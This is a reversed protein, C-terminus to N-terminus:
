EWKQKNQQYTPAVTFTVPNICATFKDWDLNQSTISGPCGNDVITHTIYVHKPKVIYESTKGQERRSCEITKMSQRYSHTLYKRTSAPM